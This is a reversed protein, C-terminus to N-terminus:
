KGELAALLQEAEEVTIKKEELLKLITLREENTVPVNISEPGEPSIDWKWRGININARMPAQGRRARVEAARAKAEARRMAAEVKISARQGAAEARRSAEQMHASAREMAAQVRRNIRDSFDPPLPWEFGGDGMGVGFDAASEWEGAQSTVLLDEGATLIMEPMGELEAGIVVDFEHTDHPIEVGPFDVQISEESGGILHLRINSEPPLRAILDSGATVDYTSGPQPDIYLAADAGANANVAGHINRLYLDSGVSQLTAMGDVDRLSADGGVSDVLCVGHGGRLVLDGGITGATMAGVNRMSADGGITEMTVPGLDNVILDGSVPGITVPGHLAQFSADGAVQEVQLNAGRPLYLILDEFCSITIPDSGIAVDLTDGDTKAMLENRDWGAVRLDGSVNHVNVNPNAGVSITQQQM